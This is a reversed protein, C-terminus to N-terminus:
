EYCGQDKRIVYWMYISWEDDEGLMKVAEICSVSIGAVRRLICTGLGDATIRSVIGDNEKM